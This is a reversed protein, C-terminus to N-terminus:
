QGEHVSLLVLNIQLLVAVELLQFAIVTIYHLKGHPEQTHKAVRDTVVVHDPQLLLLQVRRPVGTVGRHTLM